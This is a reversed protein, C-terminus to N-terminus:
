NKQEIKSLREDIVALLYELFNLTLDIKAELNKNNSAQFGEFLVLIREKLSKLFREEDSVYCSKENSVRKKLKEIDEKVDDKEKLPESGEIESLTSLIIDKLDM